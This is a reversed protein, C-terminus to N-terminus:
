SRPERRVSWAHAVRELRDFIGPFGAGFADRVEANPFGKQLITMRTRAADENKFTVEVDREINFGDPMTLSSRFGLRRPRDILTFHNTERYPAGDPPASRISWVGGVRLDCTVDVDWDPGGAFVIRGADVDAYADFVDEVDAHIMREATLDYTDAGL